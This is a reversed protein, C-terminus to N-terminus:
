SKKSEPSITALLPLSKIVFDIKKKAQQLEKTMEEIYIEQQVQNVVKRFLEKPM